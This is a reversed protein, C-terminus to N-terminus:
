TGEFLGVRANVDEASLDPEASVCLPALTEDHRISRHDDEQKRCQRGRGSNGFENTAPRHLPSYAAAENPGAEQIPQWCQERPQDYDPLPPRQHDTDHVPRNSEGQINRGENLFRRTRCWLASCQYQDARTPQHIEEKDHQCSPIEDV